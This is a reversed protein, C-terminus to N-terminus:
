LIHTIDLEHDELDFIINQLQHFYMLNTKLFVMDDTHRPKDQDGERLTVYWTLNGTTMDIDNQSVAIERFSYEDNRLVYAYSIIKYWTRPKVDKILTGVVLAEDLLQTLLEDTIPIGKYNDTYDTCEDIDHGTDLCTLMNPMDPTFTKDPYFYILNGVRLEKKNM